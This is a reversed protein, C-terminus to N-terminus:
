KQGWLSQGSIDNNVPQEIRLVGARKGMRDEEPAVTSQRAKPRTSAVKSSRNMASSSLAGCALACDRSAASSAQRARTPRGITPGQM